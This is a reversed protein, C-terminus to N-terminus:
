RAVSPLRLLKFGIRLAPSDTKLRFDGHQPDVFLPDAILSHLDQGRRRWEAWSLGNFQIPLGGVRFYLNHDFKFHNGDWHGDLLKGEKWYVLNHEFTFSLHQEDRTRRIQATQGLAFINNRVVNQAGYHQHFGGDETRYVLNNEIVIDSSGEDTYIGWGGYSYRSVDHCINGREVTGPQVGLTYICGLDSLLGRGINYLNNYEILNHHAATPGYGWTWGVSIGTYYSDHIANRAIQNNHSQGVWIGVAAPYVLGIDHIHNNFIVNDQTAEAESPPIKADGIKIGGAGLDTMENGVIRIRKSGAGFAIAYGGLCTFRCNEIACSHTGSGQVAAPIDYAAQLDVYGNPGMSWDTDAFTLNKLHIDHVFQGKEAHGEFLVLQTLVPAIARASEIKEEPEPLYYLEGTHRDLYWEGPADLADPINEIWYRANPEITWPQPQTSLTVTRTPLDVAKVISRFEVWKLLALVEVDGKEAWSPQIDGPHFKFQAPRSKSILGDVHFFDSNPTRARPRRQGNIFLEHFYWQGEKVQSIQTEWVPGRHHSLKGIKWGQIKRGGALIADEGPYSVYTIPNVPTGSDEPALILPADLEYLGKRIYVTVPENLSKARKLARIADRAKVITRFPGDTHLSNPAPLRGSWSDNGNSSVYYIVLRSSHSSIAWSAFLLAGLATAWRSKYKFIRM